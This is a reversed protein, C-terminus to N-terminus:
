KELDEITNVWAYGPTPEVNDSFISGVKNQMLGSEIDGAAGRAIAHVIYTDNKLDVTITGPTLTISNALTVLSVKRRLRTKFKLLGPDIPMKPSLIIAAVQINAKIIAIVLWPIYAIWRIASKLIQGPGLGILKEPRYNAYLFDHTFFTVLAAAAAGIILYKLQYRGSLLIWFIYLIILEIGITIWKIQQRKANAKKDKPTDM